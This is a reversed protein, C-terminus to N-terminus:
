SLGPQVKQRQGELMGEGRREYATDAGIGPVDGLVQSASAYGIIEAMGLRLQHVRGVAPSIHLLMLM